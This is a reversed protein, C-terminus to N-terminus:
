SEAGKLMRVPESVLQTPFFGVLEPPEEEVPDPVPVPGAVEEVTTAVVVVAAVWAAVVVAGPAVVVAAVVLGALEPVVEAAAVM